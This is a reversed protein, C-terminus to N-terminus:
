LHHYPNKGYNMIRNNVKGMRMYQGNRQENRIQHLLSIALNKPIPVIGYKPLEDFDDPRQNGPFIRRSRKDPMIRFRKYNKGKLYTPRYKKPPAGTYRMGQLTKRTVPDPHSLTTRHTTSTTTSETATTRATTLPTTTITTTTTVGLTTNTDTTSVLKPLLNNNDGTSPTQLVFPVPYPVVLINSAQEPCHKSCFTKCCSKKPKKKCNQCSCKCNFYHKSESCESSSHRSRKRHTRLVVGESSSSEDHLYDGLQMAHLYPHPIHFNRM